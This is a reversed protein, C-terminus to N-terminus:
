PFCNSQLSDNLFHWTGNEDFFEEGLEAELVTEQKIQDVSMSM